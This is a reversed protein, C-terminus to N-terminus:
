RNHFIGKEAKEARRRKGSVNKQDFSLGESEYSIEAQSFTNKGVSVNTPVILSKRFFLSLLLIKLFKHSKKQTEMLIFLPKRPRIRIGQPIIRCPSNSLLKFIINKAHKVFKLPAGVQTPGPM